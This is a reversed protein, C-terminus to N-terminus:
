KQSELLRQVYRNHEELTKSFHHRGNSDAKLVYYYYGEDTPNLVAAMSSRSVSGIPGPPLGKHIRTNYPNSRDKLHKWKIDGRYDKIGYIVAADIGIPEGAKLRRWIVEAVKPNEDNVQTEKEILSAFTVAEHLTLGLERVREAYNRPLKSWFIEVMHALVGRPSPMVTFSYTAPYLYGELSKADKIKLSRILERDHALRSLEAYDAVGKAALRRLTQELTFGEPIVFKLVVPTFIEGSKMTEAIAVPAIEGKFRYSGAQYASFDGQLRVWVKFRLASDILGLSELTGALETLRTGRNLHVMQEEVSAQPANAWRHLEYLGLLVLAVVLSLGIAIIRFLRKLSVTPSSM